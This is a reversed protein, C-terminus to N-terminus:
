QHDITLLSMVFTFRLLIVGGPLKLFEPLFREKSSIKLSTVLNVIVM